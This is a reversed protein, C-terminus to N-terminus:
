FYHTQTILLIVITVGTSSHFISIQIWLKSASLKYTDLIEKLWYYFLKQMETNRVTSNSLFFPFTSNFIKTYHIITFSYSALFEPLTDWNYNISFEQQDNILCVLKNIEHNFINNFHIIKFVCPVDSEQILKNWFM